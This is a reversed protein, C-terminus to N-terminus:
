WGSFAQIAKALLKESGSQEFGTLLEGLLSAPVKIKNQRTIKYAILRGKPNKPNPIINANLTLIAGSAIQVKNKWKKLSLFGTDMAKKYIARDFKSNYIDVNIIASRGKNSIVFREVVADGLIRPSNAAPKKIAEPKSNPRPGLGFEKRLINIAIDAGNFVTGYNMDKLARMTVPENFVSIYTKYAKGSVPVYSIAIYHDLTVGGVKVDKVNIFSTFALHENATDIKYSGELESYNLGSTKLWTTLKETLLRLPTPLQTQLKSNLTDNAEDNLTQIRVKLKRVQTLMKEIIVDDGKFHKSLLTEIHNLADLQSKSEEVLKNISDNSSPKDYSPAKAKFPETPVKRKRKKFPDRKITKTPSRMVMTDFLSSAAMARNIAARLNAVTTAKKHQIFATEAKSVSKSIALIVRRM